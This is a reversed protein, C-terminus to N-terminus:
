GAGPAEPDTKGQGEPGTKGTAEAAAVGSMEEVRFTRGDVTTDHTRDEATMSKPGQPGPKPGTDGQDSYDADGKTVANAGGPGEGGAQGGGHYGIESQGGHGFFGGGQSDKGTHPNPYSGGGSEGGDSRGHINAGGPAAAVGDPAGKSAPNGPSPMPKKDTM